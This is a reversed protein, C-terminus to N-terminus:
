VSTVGRLGPILLKHREKEQDIQNFLRDVKNIKKFFWSKKKKKNYHTKDYMSIFWGSGAKRKIKNRNEIENIEKRSKIVEKIKNIQPEIKRKEKWNTLTSAFTM